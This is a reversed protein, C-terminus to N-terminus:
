KLKAVLTNLAQWRTSSASTKALLRGRKNRLTSVTVCSTSDTVQVYVGTGIFPYSVVRCDLPPASLAIQRRSSTLNIHDVKKNQLGSLSAKPYHHSIENATPLNDSTEAIADPEDPAAPQELLDNTVPPNTPQVTTRSVTKAAPDSDLGNLYSTFAVDLIGIAVIGVVLLWRQVKNARKSSRDVM